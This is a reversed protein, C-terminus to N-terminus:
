LWQMHLQQGCSVVALLYHSSLHITIEVIYITEVTCAIGLNILGTLLDTMIIVSVAFHYNLISRDMTIFRVMYWVNPLWVPQSILLLPLLSTGM